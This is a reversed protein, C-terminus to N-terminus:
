YSHVNLFFNQMNLGHAIKKLGAVYVVEASFAFQRTKKGPCYFGAEALKSAEFPFSSHQFSELRRTYSIYHPHIIASRLIIGLCSLSPLTGEQVTIIKLFTSANATWHMM